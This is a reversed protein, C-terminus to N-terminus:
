GLVALDFVGAATPSPVFLGFSRGWSTAAEESESASSLTTEADDEDLTLSVGLVVVV